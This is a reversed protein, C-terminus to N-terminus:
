LLHKEGGDADQELLTTFVLAYTEWQKVINRHPGFIAVM